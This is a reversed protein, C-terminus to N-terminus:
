LSCLESLFQGCGGGFDVLPLRPAAALHSCSAERLPLEETTDIGILRNARRVGVAVSLGERQWGALGSLEESLM